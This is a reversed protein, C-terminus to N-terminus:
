RRGGNVDGFPLLRFFTLVQQGALDIMAGLIRKASRAIWREISAPRFVDLSVNLRHFTPDIRKGRTCVM